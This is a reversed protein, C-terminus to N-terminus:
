RVCPIKTIRFLGMKTKFFKTQNDSYACFKRLLCNNTLRFLSIITKCVFKTQRLLGMIKKVFLKKIKRFLGM